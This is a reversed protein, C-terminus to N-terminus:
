GAAVPEAAKMEEERIKLDAEVITRRGREMVSGTEGHVEASFDIREYALFEKVIMRALAMRDGIKELIGVVWQREKKEQLVRMGMRLALVLFMPGLFPQDSNWEASRAVERAFGLTEQRYPHTEIKAAADWLPRPGAAKHRTIGSPLTTPVSEDLQNIPPSVAIPYLNALKSELGMLCINLSVNFAWYGIYMSAVHVDRYQYVTDYPCDPDKSPIESPAIDLAHFEDRMRRGLDHFTERKRRGLDIHIKLETPPPKLTAVLRIAASLYNPIAALEHFFTEHLFGYQLYGNPHYIDWCLDRWKQEALFCTKRLQVSEMVIFFRYALFVSRGFGTRHRDPGRLQILHGAGGAHKVWSYTYTCNFVEYFSLFMTASLTDDAFGEETSQLAENLHVLAKGYLRRSTQVLADDRAVRGLHSTAVARIAWTLTLSRNSRDAVESLWAGHARFTPATVPQRVSAIFSALLQEQYASPCMFAILAQREFKSQYWNRDNLPSPERDFEGYATLFGPSPPQRDSSNGSSTDNGSKPTNLSVKYLKKVSSTETQRNPKGRGIDITSGGVM